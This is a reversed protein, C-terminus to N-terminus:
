SRTSNKVRIYYNLIEKKEEENKSRGWKILVSSELDKVKKDLNVKTEQLSEILINHRDETSEPLDIQLKSAIQIIEKANGKEMAAAARKYLEALRPNDRTKDPHTAIAIKKWLKKISASVEAPKEALEIFENKQKEEHVKDKNLVSDDNNLKINRTLEHLSLSFQYSYEGMEESLEEIELKLSEVALELSKIKRSTNKAM